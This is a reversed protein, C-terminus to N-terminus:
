IIEGLITQKGLHTLYWRGYNHEFKLFVLKKAQLGLVAKSVISKKTTLLPYLEQITYPYNALAQLIHYEWDTLHITKTPKSKVLAVEPHYINGLPIHHQYKISNVKMINYIPISKRM